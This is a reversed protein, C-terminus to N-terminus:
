AKNMVVSTVKNASAFNVIAANHTKYVKTTLTPALAAEQHGQVITIM